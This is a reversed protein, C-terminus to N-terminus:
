NIKNQINEIKTPYKYEGDNILYRLDQDVGYDLPQIEEIIGTGPIGLFKFNVEDGIKLKM